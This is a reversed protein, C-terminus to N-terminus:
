AKWSSRRLFLGIDTEWSADPLECSAEPALVSDEPRWLCRCAHAGVRVYLRM